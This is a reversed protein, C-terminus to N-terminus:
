VIYYTLKRDSRITKTCLTALQIYRFKYIM